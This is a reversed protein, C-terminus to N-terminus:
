SLISYGMQSNHKKRPKLTLQRVAMKLCDIALSPQKAVTSHIVSFIKWTPISGLALYSGGKECSTKCKFICILNTNLHLDIENVDGHNSVLVRKSASGLLLESIPYEM